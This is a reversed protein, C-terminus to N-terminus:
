KQVFNRRRLHKKRRSKKWRRRKVWCLLQDTGTSDPDDAVEVSVNVFGMNEEVLTAIQDETALLASKPPLLPKRLFIHQDWLFQRNALDYFNDFAL